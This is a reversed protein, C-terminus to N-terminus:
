CKLERVEVPEQEGEGVRERRVYKAMDKMLAQIFFHNVITYPEIVDSLMIHHPLVNLDEVKLTACQM